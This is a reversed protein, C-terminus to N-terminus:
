LAFTKRFAQAARSPQGVRSNLVGAIRLITQQRTGHVNLLDPERKAALGILQQELDRIAAKNVAGRKHLYTVLFLILRGSREQLVKSLALLNKDNFCEQRFSAATKGVYLPTMGGVRHSLAFVYCGRGAAFQSLSSGWLGRAGPKDVFRGPQLPVVFPGHVSFDVTGAAM